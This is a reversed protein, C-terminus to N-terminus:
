TDCHPTANKIMLKNFLNTLRVNINLRYHNADRVGATETLRSEDYELPITHFTLNHLLSSKVYADYAPTLIIVEDDSNCLATLANYLAEQAGVTTCINTAADIPRELTM